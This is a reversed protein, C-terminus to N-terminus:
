LPRGILPRLADFLLRIEDEASSDEDLTAAVECLLIERYRRKLRHVATYIAAESKGLRAALTTVPVAAEGAVLASKLLDFVEARGKSEYERALLGLARDLLTVAWSRDFQREPTLEDAPEIRYRGEADRLDISIPRATGGHATRRRYQDILFHQCDTRLFTRFRGRSQDAAAIVGKELLRAFYAQTLDEADNLNHGKRRIFAYIPYWYAGCLAALAHHAEARSGDCAGLVLSWRTTPFSGSPQGLPDISDSVVSGGRGVCTRIWGMEGLMGVPPGNEM